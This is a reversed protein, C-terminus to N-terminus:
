DKVSYKGAVVGYTVYMIYVYPSVSSLLLGVVSLLTGLLSSWRWGIKEVVPLALVGLFFLSLVFHDSNQRAFAFLCNLRSHRRLDILNSTGSLISAM